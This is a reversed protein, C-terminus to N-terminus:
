LPELIPKTNDFVYHVTGVQTLDEDLNDMRAATKLASYLFAPPMGLPGEGYEGLYRPALFSSSTIAEFKSRIANFANASIANNGDIWVRSFYFDSGFSAQRLLSVDTLPINPDTIGTPVQDFAIIQEDLRVFSNSPTVWDIYFYVWRWKVTKPISVTSFENGEYIFHLHYTNNPNHDIAVSITVGNFTVLNKITSNSQPSNCYWLSGYLVGNFQPESGGAYSYTLYDATTNNTTFHMASVEDLSRSSYKYAFLESM